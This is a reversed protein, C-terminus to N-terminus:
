CSPRAQVFRHYDELDAAAPRCFAGEPCFREPEPEDVVVFGINFGTFLEHTDIALPPVPVCQSWMSIFPRHLLDQSVSPSPMAFGSELGSQFSPSLHFSIAPRSAPVVKEDDDTLEELTGSSVATVGETEDTRTISIDWSADVIRSQLSSACVTAHGDIMLSIRSAETIIRRTEAICNEVIIRNAENSAETGAPCPIEETIRQGDRTMTVTCIQTSENLDNFGNLDNFCHPYTDIDLLPAIPPAEFVQYRPNLPNLNLFTGDFTDRLSLELGHVKLPIQFATENPASCDPHDDLVSYQSYILDPYGNWVLADEQANLENGFLVSICIVSYLFFAHAHFGRAM